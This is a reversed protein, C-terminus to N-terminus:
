GIRQELLRMVAVSAARLKESTSLRTAEPSTTSTVRLPAGSEGYAPAAASTCAARSLTPAGPSGHGEQDVGIQQDLELAALRRRM